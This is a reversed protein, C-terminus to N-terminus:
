IGIMNWYQALSLYLVAFITVVTYQVKLGLSNQKGWVVWMLVVLAATALVQLYAVALLVKAVLPLGFIFFEAQMTLIMLLLGLFTIVFSGCLGNVLRWITKEFGERTHLERKRKIFRIGEIALSIIFIIISMAFLALHLRSNEYWALKRFGFSDVSMGTINGEEDRQFSVYQDGSVAQFLFPEVELWRESGWIGFSDLVLLNGEADTRIETETMLTALKLITSRSYRNQRYFGTLEEYDVVSQSTIILPEIYKKPFVRDMFTSVLEERLAMGGSQSNSAVFFGLKHQPLLYLLASFVPVGDGGHALARQGNDMREFFGYAFGPVEPHHTFQQTYMHGVTDPELIRAGKYEGEALMAILYAGMDSGTSRLSGAPAYQHYYPDGRVYDGDAYAYGVAKREMMEKSLVFSSSEMGLPTLISEKVYETFSKGTVAEVLYGALAIGYNSYSIETGPEVVVKPQKTRVFEELPMVENQSLAYTGIDSDEFGATHTLLHHLTIPVQYPNKVQFSDLYENVDKRLDLYGKEVLQMLATATFVKSVSETSFITQEPDVLVKNELDAYGYGQSFVVEGDHVLIFVTGPIHHKEHGELFFEDFFQALEDDNELSLAHVYSHVMLLAIVLILTGRMKKLTDM